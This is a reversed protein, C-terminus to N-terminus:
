LCLLPNGSIDRTLLAFWGGAAKPQWGGAKYVCHILIISQV